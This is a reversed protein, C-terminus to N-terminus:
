LYLFQSGDSMLQAFIQSLATIGVTVPVSCHSTFTLLFYAPSFTLGLLLCCASDSTSKPLIEGTGRPTLTLTM